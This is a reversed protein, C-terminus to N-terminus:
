ILPHPRTSNDNEGHSTVQLVRCVCYGRICGDNCSDAAVIMSDQRSAHVSHMHTSLIRTNFYKRLPTAETLHETVSM